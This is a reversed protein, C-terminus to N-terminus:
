DQSRRVRIGVPRGDPGKLLRVPDDEDDPTPMVPGQNQRSKLDEDARARAPDFVDIFTGLGDSISTSGERSGLLMRHSAWFVLGGVVIVAVIWPVVEM